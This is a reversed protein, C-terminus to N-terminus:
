GRSQLLLYATVYPNLWLRFGQCLLILASTHRLSLTYNLYSPLPEVLFFLINRLWFILTSEFGLNSYNEKLNTGGGGNECLSLRTTGSM